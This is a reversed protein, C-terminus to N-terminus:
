GTQGTFVIAVFPVFVCLLASVGHVASFSRIDGINRDYLLRLQVNRSNKDRKHMKHKKHSLLSKEGM